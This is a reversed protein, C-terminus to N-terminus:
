KGMEKALLKNRDDFVDAMRGVAVTLARVASNLHEQAKINEDHLAKIQEERTPPVAKAQEITTQGHAEACEISCFYGIQGEVFAIMKGQTWPQGCHTCQGPYKSPFTKVTM